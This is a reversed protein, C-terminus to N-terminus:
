RLKLYKRPDAIKGEVVSAALTLPSSLFISAKPNGMRGKFNRNATSIVVEKDAPVGAHTGVCPGCGAPLIVAGSRTLVELIGARAAQLYVEQSAPAVVLRVRRHITRGQLIRAAARLDELRGNTCTGLYALDIKTGLIAEINVVNDVSHPKAVQPSLGSLDFEKIEKYDADKDACVPSIGRNTHQKVWRLTKKDAVFLAAKAGMEVVMNSITFRGDMGLKDIVPGSFEIAMYTCGNAGLRGIIYLIIDKASLGAPLKGKIIIKITEPVRFWNKGSALVVAIDTSGLGCAFANLAGYTCTHSDAGVVLNGPLILGAEPIVQHC